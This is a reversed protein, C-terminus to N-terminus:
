KIYEFLIRLFRNIRKVSVIAGFVDKKGGINYGVKKMNEIIKSFNFSRKSARFYVQVKNKFYGYNLLLVGDYKK